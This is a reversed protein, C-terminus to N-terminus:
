PLAEEGEPFQLDYLKRYIGNLQYLEDHTGSEAIRGEDIVHIRDANRITSIRHAIILTTRGKVANALADQILRESETDLASTAEDLILIPANKLLARAIALRQRQGSSLLGGREGIMTDYGHPLAQIFEHAKAARAAQIIKEESQGDLGYAINRRVTDDFLITEQTVLGVQSRLSALTVDRVDIGDVTIRGSSPEYFRALLNIITTKGAGSLGVFAATENPNVEFDIGSLTPRSENYGFSVNEFRVRGRVPPLPFATPSDQIQPAAQLVEQIRQHCAVAQQVVNNARNLRSLPTYMAFLAFIFAGFDGPSIAGMSIRRTGVYLIFAGVAGGIFEMFPSSLSGIWALKLSTRFYSATSQAFKRIEFEETTFAKIIKHGSITEHLHRYIQSMKRQGTLSKKKLQRSFVVLPIVALPTIVFSVVALRIDIIFVGVLLALLTFMEEVFDSLGGAIAQQMKDVDNTLRSMLDGTSVRDFYAPSQYIIHRYLDDRLRKVVRHGVGKMFFNALFTFLGKGFIVILLLFPLFSLLGERSVHFLRFITDMIRYKQPLAAARSPNFLNDLIPQVLNVFVGTFLAVFISCVFSLVLLKKEQWALRMLAILDKM